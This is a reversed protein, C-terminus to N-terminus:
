GQPSLVSGYDEDVGDEQKIFEEIDREISTTGQDENILGYTGFLASMVGDATMGIATGTLGMSPSPSTALTANGAANTMVRVTKLHYQLMLWAGYAIGVGVLVPIMHPTLAAFGGGLVICSTAAVAGGLTCFGTFKM